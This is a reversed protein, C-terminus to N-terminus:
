GERFVLALIRFLVSRSFRAHSGARAAGNKEGLSKTSFTWISAGESRNEVAWQQIRFGRDQMQMSVVLYQPEKKVVAM